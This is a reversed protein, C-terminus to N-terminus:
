GGRGATGFAGDYKDWPYVLWVGDRGQGCYECGFWAPGCVCAAGARGAGGGAGTAVAFAAAFGGGFGRTFCDVVGM